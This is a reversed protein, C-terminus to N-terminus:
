LRHSSDYRREYSPWCCIVILILTFLNYIKVEDMPKLLGKPDTNKPKVYTDHTVSKGTFPM